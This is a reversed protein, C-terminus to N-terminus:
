KEVMEKGNPGYVRLKGTKTAYICIPHKYPKGTGTKLSSVGLQVWGNDEDSFLREVEISGWEFGYQTLNFKM